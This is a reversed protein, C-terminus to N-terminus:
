LYIKKLRRHSDTLVPLSIFERERDATLLVHSPSRERERKRGRNRVRCIETLLWSLSSQKEWASSKSAAPARTWWQLCAVCLRLTWTQPDSLSIAQWHFTFSPIFFKYKIPQFDPFSHFTSNIHCSLIFFHIVLRFGGLAFIMWTWNHVDSSLVISCLPAVTHTHTLAWSTLLELLFLFSRSLTRKTTWWGSLSSSSSFSSLWIHASVCVCVSATKQGTEHIGLRPHRHLRAPGARCTKCCRVAWAMDASNRCRGAWNSKVVVVVERGRKKEEEGISAATWDRERAQKSAKCPRKAGAPCFSFLCNSPTNKRKLAAAGIFSFGHYCTVGRTCSGFLSEYFWIFFYSFFSSFFIFLVHLLISPFALFVQVRLSQTIFRESTNAAPARKESSPVFITVFRWSLTLYFYFSILLAAHPTLSLSFPFSHGLRPHFSFSMKWTNKIAAQRRGVEREVVGYLFFFSFSFLIFLFSQICQVSTAM